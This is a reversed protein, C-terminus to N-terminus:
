DIAWAKFDVAILTPTHVRAEVLEVIASEFETAIWRPPMYCSYVRIGNTYTRAYVAGSSTSDLFYPEKSCAWIASTSPTNSHFNLTNPISYPESIIAIDTDQEVVTQHLLYQAGRCHNLNYFFYSTSVEYKSNEFQKRTPPAKLVAPRTEIHM